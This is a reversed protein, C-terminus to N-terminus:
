NENYKKYTFYTVITSIFILCAPCLYIIFYPSFLIKYFPIGILVPDYVFKNIILKNSIFPILLIMFILIYILRSYYRKYIHNRCFCYILYLTLIFIIFIYIDDYNLVKDKLDFEFRILMSLTYFSISVISLILTFCRQIFNFKKM